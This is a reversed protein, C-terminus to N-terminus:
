NQRRSGNESNRALLKSLNWQRVQRQRSRRRCGDPGYSVALTEENRFTIIGADMEVFGDILDGWIFTRGNRVDECVDLDDQQIPPPAPAKGVPVLTDTVTDLATLKFGGDRIDAVLAVFRGRPSPVAAFVM